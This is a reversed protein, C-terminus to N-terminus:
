LNDIPKRLTIGQSKFQTPTLGITKKFQSSLHAISSYGMKDAIESLNMQKYILLEKVKEIKQLIVFQEITIGETISFLKSLQSYEKNLTNSLIESYIFKTDQKYHIQNIIISKIKEILQARETDLLEFGLSELKQVLQNSQNTNLKNAITVEGLLIQLPKVNIEAFIKEVSLICRPCVMNKIHLKIKNSHESFQDTPKM